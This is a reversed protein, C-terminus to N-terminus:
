ENNDGKENGRLDDFSDPLNDIVSKIKRNLELAGQSADAAAAIYFERNENMMRLKMEAVTVRHKMAVGKMGEVRAAKYTSELENDPSSQKAKAGRENRAVSEVRHHRAVSEVRREQAVSAASAARMVARTPGPTANAAANIITPSRRHVMLALLFVISHHEMWWGKPIDDWADLVDAYEKKAGKRTAFKKCILKKFADRLSQGSPLCHFNSAGPMEAALNKVCKRVEKQQRWLSKGSFVAEAAKAGKLQLLMADFVAESEFRDLQIERVRRTYEMYMKEHLVKEETTACEDVAQGAEILICAEVARRHKESIVKFPSMWHWMRDFFPYEESAYDNGGDVGISDDDSDNAGFFAAAIEDDDLM